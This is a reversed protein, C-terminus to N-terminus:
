AQVRRTQHRQSHRHRDMAVFSAYFQDFAGPRGHDYRLTTFLDVIWTYRLPASVNGLDDIGRFEFYHPGESVNSLTLPSTCAAFADGDLHCEFKTIPASNKTGTFAFTNTASNSNAPPTQTYQITPATMDVTWNAATKDSQNGAKDTAYVKFSHDGENLNSYTAPSTCPQAAAGDLQCFLQEVGSGTDNATFTLAANGSGTRTAPAGNIAVTPPTADYYWSYIFGPSINGAKDTVTVSLIKSGESTANITIMGDCAGNAGSGSCLTSDIGSLNDSATWQITHGATKTFIGPLTSFAATPAVNDHVIGANVCVSTQDRLDKFQAYVSVQSNAKTLTWEKATSYPEWTGDSCDTENSIKMETGRPSNLTLQVQQSKTYQAGGNIQISSSSNFEALQQKLLEPSADFSVKSCNNYGFVLAAILVAWLPVATKM